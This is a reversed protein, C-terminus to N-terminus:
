SQCVYHKCFHEREKIYFDVYPSLIVLERKDLNRPKGRNEKM